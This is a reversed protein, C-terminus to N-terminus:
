GDLLPQEPLPDKGLKRLLKKRKASDPHAAATILLM